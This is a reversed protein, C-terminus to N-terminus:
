NLPETTDSEKSEMLQLVHPRGGQGVGVGSAWRFEHGNLRYHWGVMEGETM